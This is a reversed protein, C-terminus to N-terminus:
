GRWTSIGSTSPGFISSSRQRSLLAALQRAVVPIQISSHDAIAAAFAEPGKLAEPAKIAPEREEDRLIGCLLGEAMDDGAIM